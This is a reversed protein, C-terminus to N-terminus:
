EEEKIANPSSADTNEDEKEEEKNQENEKQKMEEQQAIEKAPKKFLERFENFERMFILALGNVFVQGDIINEYESKRFGRLRWRGDETLLYEISVNGIVPNAEGPRNEGQVGIESGAQVVLRDNFLKKRASVNLDTRNQASNGQYDTYSDLGFSLEIGTNGTLKDSFINLQDSLAQNLNDRAVTAAGGNSGSSGSEPYFRNLVLLSFVQKNLQDEQQNLQSIRGYVAGGIAGQEDEPMDLGFNLKPQMLEGDVNLYVLFPLKQRYRNQETASAGSTQSAMLGSASTEVKYIARVDLDANMPDGSWTVTSGEAINFKRKVLNYLNM